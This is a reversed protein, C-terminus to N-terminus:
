AARVKPNLWGYSIDILLNVIVVIITFTLAVGELVQIEAGNVASVVLSGLGPLVFVSEVFVTGTLAGIFNLNVVSIVPIAANKLGHKWIISGGGLGAARLTRIFDRNMVELMSERTTKAITAIGGLSLAAVPLVLSVAWGVPNQTFPVYGGSPLLRLGVAFVAVLALGLWFNPLALGALSVFDLLKGFFGGRIASATGLAVGVITGVVVGLIILALTVPLRDAILTTVPIGTRYSSMFDGRLVHAMYNTYQQWLPLNLGLKERLADLQEQTGGTGLLAQAPDTPSLSQLAFVLMSVVFILPISIAIRRLILRAV